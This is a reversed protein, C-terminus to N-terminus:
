NIFLISFLIWKSDIDDIESLSSTDLESESEASSSEEESSSTFFSSVSGAKRKRHFKSEETQKLKENFTSKSKPVDVENESDSGQVMDEQDSLDKKSDEDQQIPSPPKRIRQFRPLKLITTTRFGLTFGNSDRNERNNNSLVKNIDPAKAIIKENNTDIIAATTKNKNRRVQEDWWTEFQKYAISEIMRKNFDKKLIQKLEKTVRDIVASVTNETPDTKPESVAVPNEYKRQSYENSQVNYSGPILASFGAVYSQMYSAHPLYQNNYPDYITNAGGNPYYYPNTTGAPYYYDNTNQASAIMNKHISQLDSAMSQKVNIKEDTSSLSSLSMRDDDIRSDGPKISKSLLPPTCESKLLLEDDSSIDSADEFKRKESKIKMQEMNDATADISDNNITEIAMQMSNEHSNDLNKEIKIKNLHLQDQQSTHNDKETDSESDDLQLFPPAAGFSKEKFMM